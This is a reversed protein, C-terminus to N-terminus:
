GAEPYDTAVVKDSGACGLETFYEVSRSLANRTYVKPRGRTWISAIILLGPL